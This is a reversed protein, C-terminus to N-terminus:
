NWRKPDNKPPSKPDRPGLGSRGGDIVRLEREIRKQQAHLRLRRSLRSWGSPRWLGRCLIVAALMGGFGGGVITVLTDGSIPERSFNPDAFPDRDFDANGKLETYQANGDGRLRKAREQEYRERLADYDIDSFKGDTTNPM